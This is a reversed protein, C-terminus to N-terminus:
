RCDGLSAVRARADQVELLSFGVVPWWDYRANRAVFHDLPEDVARHFVTSAHRLYSQGGYRVVFGLHTVRDPWRPRDARVVLLLTGDPIRQSLELLKAAPVVPLSFDGVPARDDPLAIEKSGHRARWGALTVRKEAVEALPGALRRTVDRLYGKAENRPVWQSMMFHDREAYAPPGLYRVDDLVRLLDGPGSAEALALSEEVFTQCDVADFRLRPAEGPGGEGLPAHGYPTELLLASARVLRSRGPPRAALWTFVSPPPPAAGRPQWAPLAALAAATLPTLM